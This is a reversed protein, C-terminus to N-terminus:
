QVTLTYQPTPNLPCFYVYEGKKLIVEKTKSKSDTKVLSTVYANKIHDKQTTKGKPALVFGLDHDVGVNAIEFVYTGESLTLAKQTFEGKTQQLSVTKIEQAQTNLSFGLAIVLLAIFKKM